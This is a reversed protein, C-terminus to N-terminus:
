TGYATQTILLSPVGMHPHKRFEDLENRVKKASGKNGSMLWVDVFHDPNGAKWFPRNDFMRDFSKKFWERSKKYDELKIYCIGIRFSSSDDNYRKFSEATNNLEDLIVESDKM